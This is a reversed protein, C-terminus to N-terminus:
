KPHLDVNFIAQDGDKVAVSKTQSVFGAASITISYTGAPVQVSFTGDAAAKVKLKAEPIALQAAIRRGGQTSRVIGTITAPIQKKEPVLAVAVESDKGAVVSAAEAGPQFGALAVAIGQPGPPLADFRAVGREDTPVTKDGVTVQAGALPKKGEVETVVVVVAGLKPPEKKLALALPLHEGAKLEGRAEASLYGGVAARAVVPGPLLGQAGAAGAADAELRREGGALELVVEGSLPAGTDADKLSVGVAGFRPPEVPPDKWKVEVSLGFRGVEQTSVLVADTSPGFVVDRVYQGDAALGWWLKGTRFLQVRVSGGAVLGQANTVEAAPDVVALAVPLEFKGEVEVPGLELVARAALLLGHRTVAAFTPAASVGFVPLTHLAYGVYPELRLPGLPLRGVPGAQFRVLAGGTVLGAGDNLSFAERAFSATLGLYDIFYVSGGISLDNPTVGSYSMGPGVDTQAGTRYAIGYRARVNFLELATPRQPAAAALQDPQAAAADALLMALAAGM